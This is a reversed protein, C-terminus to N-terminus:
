IKQSMKSDLTCNNVDCYKSCFKVFLLNEFMKQQQQQQQM